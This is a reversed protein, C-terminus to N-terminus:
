NVSFLASAAPLQPKQDLGKCQIVWDIRFRWKGELIGLYFPHKVEKRHWLIDIYYLMAHGIDWLM